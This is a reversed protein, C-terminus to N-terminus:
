VGSVAIHEKVRQLADVIEDSPSTSEYIVRIHSSAFQLKTATGGSTYTTHASSDEANLEFTDATPNVVLFSRENLEVMGGLGDLQVQDGHAFGHAVATVVAPDAETVATISGFVTGTVIADPATSNTADITKNAM